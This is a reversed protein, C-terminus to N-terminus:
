LKESFFTTAAGCAEASAGKTHFGHESGKVAKLEAGFMRSYRVSNSYPVHTDKTGHIFLIPISLKKIERWPELAHTEKYIARGIKSGKRVFFGHRKLEAEKKKTFWRRNTSAYDIVSNWLVLARVRDQHAPAFLLAAGGGFSAALLGFRKYRLRTLLGYASELDDREKTIRMDVTDGESEGHGMFDFRFVVFGAVTLSKSLDVFAGLEDKDVGFGHCLIICKDTKKKPTELIGSLLLGDKNRFRLRM